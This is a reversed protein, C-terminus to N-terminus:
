SRRLWWAIWARSGTLLVPYAFPLWASIWVQGAYGELILAVALLAMVLFAVCLGRRHAGVHRAAFWWCVNSLLAGTWLVLFTDDWLDVFVGIRAEVIARQATDATHALEARWGRHVTFVILIQGALETGKEILAFVLGAGAAGAARSMLALTLYWSALLGLVAHGILFWDRLEGTQTSPLGLARGLLPLTTNVLTTVALASWILAAVRRFGPELTLM